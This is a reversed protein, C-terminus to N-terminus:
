TAEKVGGKKEPSSYTRRFANNSAALTPLAIRKEGQDLECTDRISNKM